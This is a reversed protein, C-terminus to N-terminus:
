IHLSRLSDFRGYPGTVGFSFGFFRTFEFSLLSISCYLSFVLCPVLVFSLVCVCVCITANLYCGFCDTSFFMSKKKELMEFREKGIRADDCNLIPVEGQPGM